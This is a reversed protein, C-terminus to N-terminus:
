VYEDVTAADEDGLRIPVPPDAAFPILPKPPEGFFVEHPSYGTSRSVTANIAATVWPILEMWSGQPNAFLTRRMLGKVHRVM